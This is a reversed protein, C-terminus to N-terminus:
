LNLTEYHYFRNEGFCNGKWVLSGGFHYCYSSYRGALSRAMMETEQPSGCARGGVQAKSTTHNSVGMRLKPLGEPSSLLAATWSMLGQCRRSKRNWQTQKIRRRHERQHHCTSVNGEAAWIPKALWRREGHGPALDGWTYQFPLLARHKLACVPCSGQNWTQRQWKTAKLNYTIKKKVEWALMPIISWGGPTATFVVQKLICLASLTTYLLSIHICVYVCM